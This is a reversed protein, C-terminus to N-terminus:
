PNITRAPVYSIRRELRDLCSPTHIHYVGYDNYKNKFRQALNRDKDSDGIFITTTIRGPLSQRIDGTSRESRKYSIIPFLLGGGLIPINLHELSIPFRAPGGKYLSRSIQHGKGPRYFNDTCGLLFTGKGQLHILTNISADSIGGLRCTAFPERLCCDIDFIVATAPLAFGKQTLFSPLFQFSDLNQVPLTEATNPIHM